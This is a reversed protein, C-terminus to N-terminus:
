RMSARSRFSAMWTAELIGDARSPLTSTRGIRSNLRGYGSFWQHRTSVRRVLYPVPDLGDVAGLRAADEGRQDAEEAVEVQGLLRQVVGERGRDLLPRAVAHGALGRAHSTEAPRKM